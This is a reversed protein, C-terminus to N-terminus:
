VDNECFFSKFSNFGFQFLNLLGGFFVLFNSFDLEHNNPKQPWKLSNIGSIKCMDNRVVQKWGFSNFLKASCVGLGGHWVPFAM